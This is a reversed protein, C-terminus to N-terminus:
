EDIEGNLWDVPISGAEKAKRLSAPSALPNNEGPTDIYDRFTAREVDSAKRWTRMLTELRTPKRRFGAEVAAANPSLKRVVVADFLEPAHHRLRNLTYARSNGQEAKESRIINDSQQILDSRAGQGPNCYSAINMALAADYPQIIKGLVRWNKGTIGEFYRDARRCPRGLPITEWPTQPMLANLVTVLKEIGYEEAREFTNQLRISMGEVWEESGVPLTDTSSRMAKFIFTTAIDKKCEPSRGTM